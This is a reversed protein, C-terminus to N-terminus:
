SFNDVTVGTPIEDIQAVVSFSPLLKLVQSFIEVVQMM